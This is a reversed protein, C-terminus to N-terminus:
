RITQMVNENCVFESHSIVLLSISYCKLPDMHFRYQPNVIVVAVCCIHMKRPYINRMLDLM